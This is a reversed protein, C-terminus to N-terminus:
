DQRRPRRLAAADRVRREPSGAQKSKVQAVTDLDPDVAAILEDFNADLNDLKQSLVAQSSTMIDSLREMAVNSKSLLKAIQDLTKSQITLPEVTSVGDINVDFNLNSLLGLAGAGKVLRGVGTGGKGGKATGRAAPTGTIQSLGEAADDVLEGVRGAGRQEELPFSSPNLDSLPKDKEIYKRLRPLNKALERRVEEEDYLEILNELEQLFKRILEDINM